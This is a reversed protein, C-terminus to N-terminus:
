HETRKKHAITGDVHEFSIMLQGISNSINKIGFFTRNKKLFFFYKRFFIILKIENKNEKVFLRFV